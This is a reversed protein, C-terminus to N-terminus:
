RQPDGDDSDRLRGYITRRSVKLLDAAAGVLADKAAGPLRSEALEYAARVSQRRCSSLIDDMGAGSAVLDRVPLVSDRAASIVEERCWDPSLHAYRIRRTDGAHRACHYAVAELQRVNGSFRAGRLADLVDADVHVEQSGGLARRVAETFLLPIDEPHERLAPLTITIGQLRYFLDPRFGGSRVLRPLDRNTAALVRCNLPIERDSGVPRYRREQLATLFSAQLSPCLEGIEDLLLTGRGATAIAGPRAEQAGTFAGHVHGFIESGFLSPIVAGCDVSHFPATSRSPDVCHLARAAILKGSGTEGLFLVSASSDDVAEALARRVRRMAPSRGLLGGVTEIRDCIEARRYLRRLSEDLLSAASPDSSDIVDDAGNALLRGTSLITGGGLRPTVVVVADAGSRSAERVSRAACEVWCDADSEAIVEIRVDATLIASRALDCQIECLPRVTFIRLQIRAPSV